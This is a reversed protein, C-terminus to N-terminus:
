FSEGLLFILIRYLKTYTYKVTKNKSNLVTTQLPLQKESQISSTSGVLKPFASNSKTSQNNNLINNNSSIGSSSNSRKIIRNFKSKNTQLKSISCTQPRECYTPYNNIEDELDYLHSQLEDVKQFADLKFNREQLLNKKLSNLEKQIKIDSTFQM